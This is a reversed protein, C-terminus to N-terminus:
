INYFLNAEKLFAILADAAPSEDGLLSQISTGELGFAVRLDELEVCNILIHEVSAPVGCTECTRRFPTGGFNHSARSHGTRLRSVVQQEKLSPRDKWPDTTATRKIWKKIDQFPVNDSFRPGIPGSGALHDAIVNGQIGCHGPVWMYVTNPPAHTVTGQIWPHKPAEDTLAMIASQSDTVILIPRNAPLSTAHFIAAAEASFVSCQAPLSNSVVLSDGSVGMGVGSSSLSGDTYRIEHDQYHAGLTEVVTRRLALTNDGARFRDKIRSDIRIQHSQWSKDGHWHVRAVPPLNNGSTKALFAAAKTATAATYVLRFPLIGAEVCAADAPTSPLLGSVTRVYGNYVPELIQVAKEAALCTLEVGYLLRSDIIARAVRFRIERNNSRHPRSITKMLNSRSRCDKKVQQFHPELSLNRDLLVGLVRITNKTPIAQQKIMIPQGNNRHRTTCIHCRVSKGASLQFGVSDAWRVVSSVAAQARLKTRQRTPGVTVILVDDAYVFIYINRPLKDFVGSMAVLFLTVAIVSGQPVGTEESFRRSQVNGVSVRFSRDTLFNRVFHLIRGKLGWEALKKMVAPTWTRNFAKSIDLSVIETHHGQDQAEKLVEGLTAFYTSTGYGQRFAHQRHDLLGKSELYQKLRRNVMRELVKAM